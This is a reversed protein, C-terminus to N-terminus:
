GTKRGFVPRATAEGRPPFPAAPANGEAAKRAMYRALAADADFASEGAPLAPPQDPSVPRPTGTGSVARLIKLAMPLVFFVGIAGLGLLTPGLGTSVAGQVSGGVNLFYFFLGGCYLIPLLAGIIGFGLKLSRM